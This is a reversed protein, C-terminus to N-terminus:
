IWSLFLLIDQVSIVGDSNLDFNPCDMCGFNALLDLFDNITIEGDENFDGLYICSGIPEHTATIDYNTAQPNMCGFIAISSSSFNLAEAFEISSGSNTQALLNITGSFDGGGMVTFQGLLVFDDTELPYPNQAIWGGGIHDHIQIQGDMAIGDTWNAVGGLPSISTVQDEDPEIGLTFWSTYANAPFISNFMSNVQSVVITSGLDTGFGYFSGTTELLLPSEDDGYVALIGDTNESLQAYLHYTVSGSPLTSVIGILSDEHVFSEVLALGIIHDSTTDAWEVPCNEGQYPLYQLVDRIDIWGSADTDLLPYNSSTTVQTGYQGLIYLWTNACLCDDGDVDYLNCVTPCLSEGNGIQVFFSANLADDLAQFFFIENSNSSSITVTAGDLSEGNQSEINLSYCGDELCIDSYLGLQGNTFIGWGQNQSINWEITSVPGSVEIDISNFECNQCLGSLIMLYALSTCLLRM